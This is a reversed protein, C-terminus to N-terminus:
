WRPTKGRLQFGLDGWLFSFSAGGPAPFFFYFFFPTTDEWSFTEPHL